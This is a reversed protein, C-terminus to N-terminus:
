FTFVVLIRYNKKRVANIKTNLFVSFLCIKITKDYM